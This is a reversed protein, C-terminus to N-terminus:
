QFIAFKCSKEFDDSLDHYQLSVLYQMGKNKHSGSIWEGGGGEM